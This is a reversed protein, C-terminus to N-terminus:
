RSKLNPQEGRCAKAETNNLVLEGKKATSRDGLVYAKLGCKTLRKWITDAHLDPFHQRQLDAVDHARTSALMRATICVDHTTFKCPHGSKKKTHYFDKTEKYRKFIRNVTTRDVSYKEAIEKESIGQTRLL